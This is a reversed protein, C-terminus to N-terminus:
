CRGLKGSNSHQSTERYLITRDHDSDMVKFLLSDDAFLRTQSARIPEPLDNIFCLFLLPGLVTGQPVVSMFEATDSKDGDAVVQQNRQRLFSEIWKKTQNRWGGRGRTYPLTKGPIKFPPPPPPNYFAKAFDLM